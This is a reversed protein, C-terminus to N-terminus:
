WSTQPGRSHGLNSTGQSPEGGPSDEGLIVLRPSTVNAMAAAEREPLEEHHTCGNAKRLAASKSKDYVSSDPDM